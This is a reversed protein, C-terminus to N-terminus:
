DVRYHAGRSEQNLLAAHAVLLATQVGDRLDLIRKDIRAARYFKEIRHKLYELDSKARNLRKETRIIGSYNWMTYKIMIRDQKVLAPDISEQHRPFRWRPTESITYPNKEGPLSAIIDVAAQRGWVLGELLSVSALRNAGHVGTASVEGIAYLNRISTRGRLDVWVGGCSYHASPVVPIPDKEIDINYEACKKYITPFRDPINIQVFDAINLLVYDSQDELM